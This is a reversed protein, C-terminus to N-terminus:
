DLERKIEPSFIKKECLCNGFSTFRDKKCYWYFSATLL